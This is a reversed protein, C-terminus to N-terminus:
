DAGGSEKIPMSLDFYKTEKLDIMGNEIRGYGLFKKVENEVVYYRVRKSIVGQKVTVKAQYQKGNRNQFYTMIISLGSSESPKSPKSKTSM